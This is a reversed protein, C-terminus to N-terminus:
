NGKQEEVLFLGLCLLISSITSSLILGSILARIISPFSESLSILSFMTISLITMQLSFNKCQKALYIASESMNESNSNIIKSSRLRVYVSLLIISFVIVYSLTYNIDSVIKGSIFSLIGLVFAWTLLYTLPKNNPKM